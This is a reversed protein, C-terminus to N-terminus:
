VKKFHPVLEIESTINATLLTLMIDPSLQNTVFGTNDTEGTGRVIWGMFTYGEKTPASLPVVGDYCNYTTPNDVPIVGDEYIYKVNFTQWKAYIDTPIEDVLVNGEADAIQIGEGRDQSYWGLFIARYEEKPLPLKEVASSSEFSIKLLSKIFGIPSHMTAIFDYWKTYLHIAGYKSNLEDVNVKNQCDKDWYWESNGFESVMDLFVEKLNGYEYSSFLKMGPQYDVLYIGYIDCEEIKAYVKVTEDLSYFAHGLAFKTEFEEDKYWGFFNYGPDFDVEYETDYVEGWYAIDEYVKEGGSYFEITTSIVGFNFKDGFEEQYEDLTSKSVYVTFGDAVGVFEDGSIAICDMSIVRLTELATCNYFSETAIVSTIAALTVKQLTTNTTYGEETKDVFAYKHIRRYESLDIESATGNYKFLVEGLAFYEDDKHAEYWATNEFPNGVTEWLSSQEVTLLNTCNNFAGEFVTAVQNLNVEKINQNGYFAYGVIDLVTSPVEYAEENKAHPYAWLERMEYDFLVGDCVKFHENGDSIEFASIATGYFVGAGIKEVNPGITFSSLSSCEAFAGSNIKTVTDPLNCEVLSSCGRFAENEIRVLSSGEAFKIAKLTKMDAFAEYGISQVTKPIIVTTVNLSTNGVLELKNIRTVPIGKIYEPINVIGEKFEEAEANIADIECTTGDTSYGFLRDISDQIESESEVLSEEESQIESEIESATLDNDDNPTITTCGVFCFTAIISLVLMILIRKKM